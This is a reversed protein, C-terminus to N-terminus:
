FQTAGVFDGAKVVVALPTRNPLAALQNAYRLTAGPLINGNAVIIAGTATPATAVVFDVIISDEVARYTSNSTSAAAGSSNLTWITGTADPLYVDVSYTRGTRLGRLYLTGNQAAM